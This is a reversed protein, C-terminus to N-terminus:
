LAGEERLIAPRSRAPAVSRGWGVAVAVVVAAVAAGAGLLAPDVSTRLAVAHDPVRVLALNGLLLRVALLAGLATGAATALALLVLERRAAARLTATAVGVVRLAALDRRWGARQRSLATGLALLAILLCALAMVAYVGAQVARTQLRTTDEVRSLPTVRAGEAASLERLLTPPTDAAAIIAVDAIPVTPASGVLATPLDLLVGDAEVLPLAAATGFLRAPRDDGGPSDVTSRDDWTVSSTRIVPLAHVSTVASLERDSTRALLGDDVQLLGGPRGEDDSRAPMWDLRLADAGGLDLRDIVFPLTSSGRPRSATVRSIRCGARCGQIGLELSVEGGDLQIPLQAGTTVTKGTSDVYDISVLAVLDGSLRRSVGRVGVVLSESTSVGVTDVLDHLLPRVREVPTGAYFDGLVAEYRDLDLYARRSDLSGTGPVLVAAMLHRGEPDLERTTALAEAGSGSPVAVRLPGGARLRATEDSWSSVQVAGTAALTGVTAAAVVLRLPSAVDAVRALRRVALFSPIAGGRTPRVSWRAALQVLWVVLQGVALGVLAPAALVLVDPDDGAVSARYTAVVAAVVLLVTAALAVPSARRPRRGSRVQESLPEGLTQVMGAVVAVLGVVVIALGAVLSTLGPPRPDAGPALLHVALRGAVQGVVIGAAGGLLLVLLPETSALASLQGGQVGRLRALGLEARRAEALERATAPVAVLGLVLLPVALASSTDAAEAFGIVAVTGSVVILTLLLLPLLTWRRSWAGRLTRNV